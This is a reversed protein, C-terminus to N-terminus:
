KHVSYVAIPVFWERARVGSKLSVEKSLQGGVSVMQTRGVLFERVCIVVRSDVGSAVLKTLLREYVLDFAKSIDIIDADRGVEEDVSDATDLCVTVVQSEYSYGPRFGHQGEYLM